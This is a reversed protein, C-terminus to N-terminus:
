PKAGKDFDRKEFLDGRLIEVVKSERPPQEPPRNARAVATRVKRRPEPQTPAPPPAAKWGFLVQPAAGSTEVVEADVASRLALLLQGKAASLALQEAQESSVMLTAVTASVPKMPDRGGSEVEKGVALVKINQLIIKSTYPAEGRDTPRMTVIVDVHDGPHIFGAVGVVDDVRVAVARMGVPLMVSLAGKGAEGSTIKSHLIPEGKTIGANVVKGALESASGFTGDPLSTLPWDVESLHDLQLMTAVHLDTAAVVVKQTPVRVAAIRKDLYQTLLVAVGLAALGAILLLALARVRAKSVSAAHTGKEPATAM